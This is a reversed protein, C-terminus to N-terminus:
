PALSKGDIRALFFPAIANLLAEDDLLDIGVCGGPASAAYDNLLLRAEDLTITWNWRDFVRVVRMEDIESDSLM